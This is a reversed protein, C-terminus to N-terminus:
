YIDRLTKEPNKSARIQDSKIAFANVNQNLTNTLYKLFEYAETQNETTILAGPHKLSYNDRRSKLHNILQDIKPTTQFNISFNQHNSSLLPHFIQEKQFELVTDILDRIAILKEKIQDELGGSNEAIEQSVKLGSLQKQIHELTEQFLAIKQPKESSM